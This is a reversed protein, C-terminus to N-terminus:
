SLASNRATLIVNSNDIDIFFEKLFIYLKKLSSIIM